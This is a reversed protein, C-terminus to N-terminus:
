IVLIFSQSLSKKNHLRLCKLRYSMGTVEYRDILGKLVSGTGCGLELVTHTEPHYKEIFQQVLTYSRVREGMVVDYFNAFQDYNTM